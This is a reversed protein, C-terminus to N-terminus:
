RIITLKGKTGLKDIILYLYTGPAVSNGFQNEGKWSWSSGLASESGIVSDGLKYERVLQGSITYIKVLADKTLQDFTIGTDTSGTQANGDYPVWPNPYVRVQELTQFYPNNDAIAWVGAHPLDFELENTESNYISVVDAMVWRNDTKDFYVPVLHEKELYLDSPLPVGVKVNCNSLDLDEYNISNIGRAFVDYMTSELVRFASQQSQIANKSQSTVKNKLSTSYSYLNLINVPLKDYSRIIGHYQSISIRNPNSLYNVWQSNDWVTKESYNYVDDVVKLVLDQNELDFDFNTYTWMGNQLVRINQTSNNVFIDTNSNMYGSFSVKFRGNISQVSSEQIINTVPQTSNRYIHLHKYGSNNAKDYVTLVLHNEGEVLHSNNGYVEIVQNVNAGVNEGSGVVAGSDTRVDWHTINRSVAWEFETRTLSDFLDTKGISGLYGLLRNNDSSNLKVQTKSLRIEPMQTVFEVALIIESSINDALDKSIINGLKTYIEDSNSDNYIIFEYNTTPTNGVVEISTNNTQYYISSNLEKEGKVIYFNRSTTVEFATNMLNTAIVNHITPNVPPTRDERIYFSGNNITTNSAIDELIINYTSDGPPFSLLYYWNASSISGGTLPDPVIQFYNSSSVTQANSTIQTNEMSLWVRYLWGENKDEPKEGYLLKTQNSFDRVNNVLGDVQILQNATVGQPPTSDITLKKITSLLPERYDWVNAAIQNGSYVKWYYIGDQFQHNSLSQIQNISNFNGEIWGSDYGQNSLVDQNIADHVNMEDLFSYDIVKNYYLFVPSVKWAKVRYGIADNEKDVVQQWTLDIQNNSTVYDNGPLMQNSTVITPRENFYTSRVVTNGYDIGDFPRVHIDVGRGEHSSIGLRSSQSNSLNLQITNNTIYGTSYIGWKDQLFAVIDSEETATLQGEVILLEGIDGDFFDLGNKSGLSLAQSAGFVGSQSFTVDKQNTSQLTDKITTSNGNVSVLFVSLEGATIPNDSLVSNNNVTLSFYGNAMGTNFGSMSQSLFTGNISDYKAVIVMTYDGSSPLYDIIMDQSGDFRVINKGNVSNKLLKPMKSSLPQTAHHNRRSKDQWSSIKDGVQTMSGSDAADLWLKLGKVSSIPNTLWRYEYQKTNQVFNLQSNSMVYEDGIHSVNRDGSEYGIDTFDRIMVSINDTSKALNSVMVSESQVTVDSLKPVDNVATIEVDVSKQQNKPNPTYGDFSIQDDTDSLTLRLKAAGWANEFPSITLTKTSSANDVILHSLNQIINGFSDVLEATWSLKNATDEIDSEYQSLNIVKSSDELLIQNPINGISPADNVPNIIYDFSPTVTIPNPTYQSYEPKNVPYRQFPTLSDNDVISISVNDIGYQNLKPTVQLTLNNVAMTNIKSRDISADVINVGLQNNLEIDYILGSLDVTKQTDEFSQIALPQENNFVPADNVPWVRLIVGESSSLRQDSVNVTVPHDGYWNSNPKFVLNKQFGHENTITSLKATVQTSEFEIENNIQNLNQIYFNGTTPNDSGSVTFVLNEKLDDVDDVFDFLNITPTNQDELSFFSYVINGAADLAIGSDTFETIFEPSDNIPNVHIVINKTNVNGEEDAVSVSIKANDNGIGFRNGNLNEGSNYNTFYDLNLFHINNNDTTIRNTRILSESKLNPDMGSTITQTKWTFKNKFSIQDSAADYLSVLHATDEISEIRSFSQHYLPDVSFQPATRDPMMVYSTEVTSKNGVGDETQVSLKYFHSDELNADSWQNSNSVLETNISMENLLLSDSRSHQSVITGGNQSKDFIYGTDFEDFTYYRVLNSESGSISTKIFQNIQDETRISSWLRVEDVKGFFVSENISLNGGGVIMPQNSGGRLDNAVSLVESGNLFLKTESGFTMAIHHWKNSYIKNSNISVVEDGFEVALYSYNKQPVKSLKLEFVDEKQVLIENTSMASDNRAWDFWFEITKDSNQINSPENISVSEGALIISKNHHPNNWKDVLYSAIENEINEPM